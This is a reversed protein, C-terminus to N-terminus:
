GEDDTGELAERARLWMVVDEHAPCPEPLGDHRGSDSEEAIEELADKFRANEAELKEILAEIDEHLIREGALVCKLTLNERELKKIRAVAQPGEPNRHWNSTCDGSGKGSEVELLKAELEEDTM